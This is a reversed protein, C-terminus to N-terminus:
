WHGNQLGGGRVTILSRDRVSYNLDHLVPNSKSIIRVHELGIFFAVVWLGVPAGSEKMTQFLGPFDADASQHIVCQAKVGPTLSM